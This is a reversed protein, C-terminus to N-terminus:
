YVAANSQVLSSEITWVVLSGQRVSLTETRLVTSSGVPDGILRLSGTAVRRWPLFFLTTNEGGALGLRSHHGREDLYIVVDSFNHNVVRIAVEGSTPDAEVEPRPRHCAGVGLILWTLLLAPRM